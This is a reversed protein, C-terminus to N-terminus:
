FKWYLQIKAETKHHGQIEDLGSGTSSRNPSITQAIRGFLTVRRSLDYSMNLYYRYGKDYFVPISYSYLVDNEFTYLRSNYDDTEFYQFRIGASFPKMMPKYIVDAYVLFGRSDAPGKHDFWVMETRNRLTIFRSIKYSFQTRWNQKPQAVVPSLTLEDPNFNIAKSERKFRTYIELQRNPNYNLEVMYDSGSSPANVRYRLWPFKYFDFYANLQWGSAPRITIGTYLGQENTPYTGETFANTYLSQYKRNINRYLMSIDVSNAASILIGNVFATGGTANTAAEGFFHFNKFTTSYDVSYNGFSKGSLAFLNYPDTAKQLPLKFQYHIGNFGIHIRKFQFALNGGFSLQRQVGKDELESNTRHYGTTQLSSIIDEFQQLTDASIFNADLKRYSGFATFEWNKRGITVAAGRHFNIEGASNYPRLVSSQRKITSIDPGKKFALSQWQTLGQGMNVTYDGIALAKIIGLRRIFIHASYFDFGQKQGGKFFQEGADKEGLVGFQLLNKYVYKYRFYLKQPSGPYYNKAVSSDLLYGKSRELVQTVRILISHEGKKLRDGIDSVPNIANSVEIYPLIKKITSIDWGPIAQLEYVSNLKGLYQRYMVLNQIQLASLPRLEKLLVVDATNLNIPDKLFQALEQQYSDDETEADENNQTLNELEQEVGTSPQEPTNPPNVVQSQAIAPGSIFVIIILYHLLCKIFGSKGKM